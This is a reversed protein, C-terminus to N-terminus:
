LWFWEGLSYWQEDLGQDLALSGVERVGDEGTVRLRLELLGTEASGM